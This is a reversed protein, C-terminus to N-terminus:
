TQIPVNRTGSRKSSRPFRVTLVGRDVRATARDVDVGPPLPVTRVFSGYRREAVYVDGRRDEREEHKEGRITLGGPTLSLEIDDPDLGPVEVTAVVEDDTERLDVSPGWREGARSWPAPAEDLFRALWRDVDGRLALADGRSPAEDDHQKRWPLLTGVKDMIGM